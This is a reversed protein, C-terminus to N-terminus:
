QAGGKVRAIVMGECNYEKVLLMSELAIQASMLRKALVPQDVVLRGYRAVKRRQHELAIGFIPETM